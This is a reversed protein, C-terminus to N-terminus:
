KKNLGISRSQILWVKQDLRKLDESEYMTIDSTFIKCTSLKESDDAVQYILSRNGEEVTGILAFCNEVSGSEVLSGCLISHMRGPTMPHVLVVNKIQGYNLVSVGGIAGYASGLFTIEPRWIKAYVNEIVGKNEYVIGSFTQMHAVSMPTAGPKYAPDGFKLGNSFTFQSYEDVMHYGCSDNRIEQYALDLFGINRVTGTLRGIVNAFAGGFRDWANTICNDGMLSANKISYGNGEIIGSFAVGTPNIGNRSFSEWDFDNYTSELLKKWQLSDTYVRYEGNYKHPTIKGDLSVGAIPYIVSDTYDIDSVLVYNKSLLDRTESKYSALSLKTLDEKCSIATGVTVICTYTKDKYTASVTTQGESIPTLTGNSVTVIQQDSSQWTADQIIESQTSNEAKLKITYSTMLSNEKGSLTTNGFALGVYSDSISVVMEEPTETQPECALFSFTFCIILIILTLKKM